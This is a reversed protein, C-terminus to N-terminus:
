CGTSHDETWVNWDSNNIKNWSAWPYCHGSKYPNTWNYYYTAGVRYFANRFKQQWQPGGNTGGLQDGANLNEVAQSVRIAHWARWSDSLTKVVHGDISFQWVGSYLGLSFAHLNSDVKARGLNNAWPQKFPDGTVGWAYFYDVIFNDMGNGCVAAGGNCETEGIQVIDSQGPGEIGIWASSESQLSNGLCLSYYSYNIQTSAYAVYPASIGASNDRSVWTNDTQFYDCPVNMSASATSVSVAVVMPQLLLAFAIPGTLLRKLTRILTM